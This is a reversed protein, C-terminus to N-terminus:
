NNDIKINKEKTKKKSDIENLKEEEYSKWKRAGFITELNTKFIVEKTLLESSMDVEDYEYELIILGNGGIADKLLDAIKDIDTREDKIDKLENCSIADYRLNDHTVIQKDSYRNDKSYKVLLCKKGAIKYRIYRNLLTTSKGSFMPGLILNLKGM